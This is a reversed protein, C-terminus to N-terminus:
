RVKGNKITTCLASKQLGYRHGDKVEYNIYPKGNERWAQQMGDEKDEKFTLFAYPKGSEYWQKNLGEKKSKVYTFDFKQNGNKWYGYHRGFAKGDKYSRSEKLKGNKFFTLALGYQKGNLYSAVKIHEGDIIEKLYGNFFTDKIKYFGNDLKIHANPLDFTDRPIMDTSVVLSFPKKEKEKTNCSALCAIFLILIKGSLIAKLAM